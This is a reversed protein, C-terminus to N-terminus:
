KMIKRKKHKQVYLSILEKDNETSGVGHRVVQNPYVLDSYRIREGQKRVNM